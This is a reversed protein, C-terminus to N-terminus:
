PFQPPARSPPRLRKGRAHRAPLDLSFSPGRLPLLTAFLPAKGPVGAMASFAFACHSFGSQTSTLHDKQAPSANQEGCLILGYADSGAERGLMYGAPILARLLVAALALWLALRQARLPILM